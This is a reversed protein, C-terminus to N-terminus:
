IKVKVYNDPEDYKCLHDKFVKQKIFMLFFVCKKGFNAQIKFNSDTVKSENQRILDCKYIHQIIFFFFSCKSCGYLSNLELVDTPSMEQRQGIIDQFEPLVTVMTEGQGNSFANKDYHMVSKYDYETGQTTSEAFTQKVFNHQQDTQINNWMVVIHDDRDPRTHEHWFGLAHLFEHEITDVTDCGDGVSLVQDAIEQNGVLSYCGYHKKVLIYHPETDRIKFDVCTKLRFQEVAM